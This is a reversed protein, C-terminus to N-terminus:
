PTKVTVTISWQCLKNSGEVLAWTEGYVGDEAPTKMDVYLTIQDQPNVVSPLDFPSPSTHIKISNLASIFKVDVANPDWATSSKNQLVVKMDFDFNPKYVTGDVPKKEIIKCATTVSPQSTSGPVPSPTIAVPTHMATATASNVTTVKIYKASVWGKGSSDISTPIRIAYWTGDSSRDLIESSTGAPVQGYSPYENGPGSRVNVPETTTGIQLTYYGSSQSTGSKTPYIISTTPTPTQTLQTTDQTPLNDAQSAFVFGASLWVFGQQTLSAPARAQWWAGDVSKATLEVVAGAPAVAIGANGAGPVDYVSIATMVVGNAAGAPPAPFAATPLMAPAEVVPVADAFQTVIFTGSVWASSVSDLEPALRALWWANDQSRGILAGTWGAATAGIAPYQEGPGSRVYSTDLVTFQAEQPLPQTFGVVPPLPPEPVVPVSDATTSTMQQGDTWGQGLPQSPFSVVWWAGDLSRGTIEASAGAPMTGIVPYGPGPGNRVLLNQIAQGAPQGAAPAPPISGPQKAFLPNETPKPTETPTPPQAPTETSVTTPPAAAETPTPTAAPKCSSLSIAAIVVLCIWVYWRNLKLNTNL